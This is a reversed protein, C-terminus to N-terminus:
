PRPTMSHRGASSMIPNHHHRRRRKGNGFISPSGFHRSANGPASKKQGGKEDRGEEDFEASASEVLGVFAAVSGDGALHRRVAVPQDRMEVSNRM